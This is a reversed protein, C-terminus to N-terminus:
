LRPPATQRILRDVARRLEALHAQCAREIVLQALMADAARVDARAAHRGVEREVLPAPPGLVDQRPPHGRLVDGLDDDERELTRPVEPDELRRQPRHGLLAPALRRNASAWRPSRTAATWCRRRAHRCASGSRSM